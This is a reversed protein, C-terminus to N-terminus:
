LVYEKTFLLYIHISMFLSSGMKVCFFVIHITPLLCVTLVFSSFINSFIWKIIRRPFSTSILFDFSPSSFTKSTFFCLTGIQLPLGSPSIPTLMYTAVAIYTNVRKTQCSYRFGYYINSLNIGLCWSQHFIPYTLRFSLLEVM